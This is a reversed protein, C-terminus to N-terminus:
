ASASTIGKLISHCKEQSVKFTQETLYEHIVADVGNGQRNRLLQTGRLPRRSVYDMDVVFAWTGVFNGTKQFQSWERKVIVPTAQGYAGNVWASVKAGYVRDEPQARVWNNALLTSFVSAVLPAAFIM